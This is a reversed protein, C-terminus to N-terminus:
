YCSSTHSDLVGAIADILSRRDIPKQLMAQFIHLSRDPPHDSRSFGTLAIAPIQSNSNGELARVAQLFAVGDLDPLGIDSLILDFKQEQVRLLAEEASSVAWVEHGARKLFIKLLERLDPADEVLLVQSPLSTARCSNPTSNMSDENAAPREHRRDVRQKFRAALTRVPPAGVYRLVKAM